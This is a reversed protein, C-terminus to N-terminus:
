REVRLVEAKVGGLLGIIPTPDDRSLAIHTADPTLQNWTPDLPCWRGKRESGRCAPDDPACPAEDIFVEAWAHFAFGKEGDGSYAMGSVERAPYGAARLLAVLLRSYETCDGQGSALIATASMPATALSYRLARHVAASLRQPLDAGAAHGALFARLPAQDHDIFPSVELARARTAAPLSSVALAECPTRRIKVEEGERTQRNDAVAADPSLGQLRVDLATVTAPDGLPKDVPVLALKYLDPAAVNPDKAVAEDELVLKFGPGVTMELTRGSATLSSGLTLGRKTDKGVVTVITTPVGSVRAEREGEIRTEIRIDELTSRDFQWQEIPGKRLRALLLAPIVDGAHEKPTAIRKTSAAAGGASITVDFGGEVARGTRVTKGGAGLDEVTEFEVLPGAPLDGYRVRDSLKLTMAQGLRTLTLQVRTEMEVGSPLPRVWEEAFGAKQGSVYVGYFQHSAEVGSARETPPAVVTVPPPASADAPKQCAPLLSLACSLSVFFLRM